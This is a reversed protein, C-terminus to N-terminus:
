RRASHSEGCNEGVGEGGEKQDGGEPGIRGNDSRLRSRLHRYRFFLFVISHYM